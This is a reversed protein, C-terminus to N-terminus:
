TCRSRCSAGATRRALSRSHSPRQAAYRHTREGRSIRAHVETPWHMRAACRECRVSPYFAEVIAPAAAAIPDIALAGGNILVVAVSISQRACQELVQMVFPEQGGRKRTQRLRLKGLM